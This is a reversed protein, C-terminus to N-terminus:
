QAKIATPGGEQQREHRRGRRRNQHRMRRRRQMGGRRRRESPRGGDPEGSRPESPVQVSPPELRESKFAEVRESDIAEFREHVEPNSVILPAVIEETVLPASPQDIMLPADNEEEFVPPLPENVEVVQAVELVPAVNDGIMPPMGGPGVVGGATEIPGTGSQVMPDGVCKYFGCEYCSRRFYVCFLGRDEPCNCRPINCTVCKEDPHQAQTLLVLLILTTFM